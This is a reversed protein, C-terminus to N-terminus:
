KFINSMKILEKTFDTERYKGVISYITEIKLNFELALDKAKKRSLYKGELITKDRQIKLSQYSNYKSPELDYEDICPIKKYVLGCNAYRNGSLYWDCFKIYESHSIYFRPPCNLKTKYTAKIRGNRIHFNINHRDIGLYEALETTTHEYM